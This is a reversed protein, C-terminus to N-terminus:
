QEIISNSSVNILHGIIPSVSRSAEGEALNARSSHSRLERLEQEYESKVRTLLQEYVQSKEAREKKLTEKRKSM